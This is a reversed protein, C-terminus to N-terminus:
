YMYVVANDGGTCTILNRADTSCDMTYTQNTVPSTVEFAQPLTDRISQETPNLDTTAAELLESAFGCSTNAGTTVVNLGFGDGHICLETPQGDITFTDGVNGNNRMEEAMLARFDEPTQEAQDPQEPEPSTNQDEEAPIGASNSASDEAIESEGGANDDTGETNSPATTTEDATVEQTVTSTAAVEEDAPAGCAGLVLATSAAVLALIRKM